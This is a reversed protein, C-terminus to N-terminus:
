SLPIAWKTTMYAILHGAETSTVARSLIGFENVDGRIGSTTGLFFNTIGNTGSNTTTATKTNLRVSSNAGNFVLVCAYFAAPTVAITAASSGAFQIFQTNNNGYVHQRSTAGDFLSWGASDSPTQFVFFYSTPQSLSLDTWNLRTSAPFNIGPLGNRSSTKWTPQFAATSQVLKATSTARRDRWESVTTSNLTVSSTQSADVWLQLGSLSSPSFGNARPKLLRPSMPM